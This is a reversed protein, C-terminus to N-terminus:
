FRYRLALQIERNPLATSTIVATEGPGNSTFPDPQAFNPDSALNFAEARFELSTRVPFATTPHPRAGETDPYGKIAFPGGLVSEAAGVVAPQVRAPLSVFKVDIRVANEQSELLRVRAGRRRLAAFGVFARHM